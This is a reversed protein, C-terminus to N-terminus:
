GVFKEWANTVADFNDVWWSANQAFSIAEHEPSTPLLNAVKNSIYKYSLKNTPGYYIGAAFEALVKPQLAFDIFKYANEPHQSYKPISFCQYLREAQNWEIAGAYGSDIPVQLRGNWIVGSDVAGTTFLEASQAGTTWYTPVYSKLEALKKFARNIDIPFIKDMPVGDALLAQELNPNGATLSEMGRQGPFEKLNWFDEWNKPHHRGSFTKTSYGLVTSFAFSSLYDRSNPGTLDSLNTRVFYSPDMNLLVKAKALKITAFEGLDIVDLPSRGAQAAALLAAPTSAVGIVSIGTAKEFPLWAAHKWAAEYSGGLSRVYVVKPENDKKSIVRASSKTSSCASLLGGVGLLGAGAVFGKLVERRGMRCQGMEKENEAVRRDSGTEGILNM